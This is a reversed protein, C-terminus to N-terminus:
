TRGGVTKQWLRGRVAKEIDTPQQDERLFLKKWNAIENAPIYRLQKENRTIKLDGSLRLGERTVLTPVQWSQNKALVTVLKRFREESFTDLM